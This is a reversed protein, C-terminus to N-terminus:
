FKLEFDDKVHLHCREVIAYILKQDSASLDKFMRAVDEIRVPHDYNSIGTEKNLEADGEGTELYTRSIKVKNTIKLIGDGSINDRKIWNNLTGYPIDLINAMSRRSKYAGIEVAKDLRQAITDMVFGKM